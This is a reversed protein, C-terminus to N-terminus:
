TLYCFATSANDHRKSRPWRQGDPDVPLASRGALCTTM